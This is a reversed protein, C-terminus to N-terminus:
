AVPLVLLLQCAAAFCQLLQRFELRRERTEPGAAAHYARIADHLTLGRVFRMAYAPRGQPDRVLGYVPVIGPHELRGTLEARALYTLYEDDHWFGAASDRPPEPYGLRSLIQKREVFPSLGFVARGAM